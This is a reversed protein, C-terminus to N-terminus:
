ARPARSPFDGLLRALLAAGARRSRALRGRHAAPISLAQELWELGQRRDGRVLWYRWLATAMPLALDSGTDLSWRMASHLNDRERDFLVLAQAKGEREETWTHKAFELFHRTHSRHM